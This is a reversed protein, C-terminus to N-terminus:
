QLIHIYNHQPVESLFTVSKVFCGLATTRDKNKKQEHSSLVFCCSMGTLYIKTKSQKMPVIEPRFLHFQYINWSLFSSVNSFVWCSFVFFIFTMKHLLILNDKKNGEGKIMECGKLNIKHGRSQLENLPLHLCKGGTLVIILLKLCWGCHQIRDCYKTQPKYYKTALM